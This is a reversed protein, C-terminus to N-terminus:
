ALESNVEALTAIAEELRTRATGALREIGMERAIALAPDDVELIGPRSLVFGRIEAISIESVPRRNDDDV